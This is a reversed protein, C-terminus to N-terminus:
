LLSSLNPSPPLSRMHQSYGILEKVYEIEADGVGVERKIEEEGAGRELGYLIQDLTKYDMGLAFEDTLGPLLDPSPAKQIIREPVGILSALEMIQTKYLSTLPEIDAGSDGYKVFYGTLKETKNCNGLILYNKLEGYYYWLVMRMRHKVRYYAIGRKLEDEGRGGDKLNRLFASEGERRYREYKQRVYREQVKRPVLFAPPVIRYAGMRWLISTFSVEKLKVHALDAVLRADKRSQPHTDREPLFLALVNERGVAKVSLVLGVASDVGGSLGLVIGERQFNLVQERIFEVIRREVEEPKKLKLQYM